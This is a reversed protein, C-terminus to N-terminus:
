TGPMISVFHGCATLGLLLTLILLAAWLKKM